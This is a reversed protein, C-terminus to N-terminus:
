SFEELKIDAIMQDFHYYARVPSNYVASLTMLNVFDNGARQLVFNKKGFLCSLYSPGGQVSVLFLANQFLAIQQKNRIGVDMSYRDSANIQNSKNEISVCAKSADIDGDNYGFNNFVVKMGLSNLLIILQTVEESTFYNGTDRNWNIYTKNTIVVYPYEAVDSFLSNDEHPFIIPMYNKFNPITHVKNSEFSIGKYSIEPSYTGAPSILLESIKKQVWLNAKRSGFSKPQFPPSFELHDDSFFYLPRSGPLGATKIYFGQSKIFILFPLWNVLLFGYEGFFGFRINKKGITAIKDEIIKKFNM